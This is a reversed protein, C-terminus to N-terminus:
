KNEKELVELKWWSALATLTYQETQKSASQWCTAPGEKWRPSRLHLFNEDLKCGLRVTDCQLALRSALTTQTLTPVEWQSPLQMWYVTPRDWPACSDVCYPIIYAQLLNWYLRSPRPSFLVVSCIWLLLLFERQPLLTTWLNRLIYFPVRLLPSDKM